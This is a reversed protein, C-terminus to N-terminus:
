TRKANRFTEFYARGNKSLKLVIRGKLRLDISIVDDSSAKDQEIFITLIRLATEVDHEPLKVTVKNKLRLNWRRQHVFAFSEAQAQVVPFAALKRLLIPAERDAGDGAVVPLHRFEEVIPREIRVGEGDLLVFKGQQGDHFVAIPVRETLIVRITGPFFRQVCASKVWPLSELRAHKEVLSGDLLSGGEKLQLAHLMEAQTTRVQEPLIIRRVILGMKSLSTATLQDLSRVVNLHWVVFGSAIGIVAFGMVWGLRTRIPSRSLKRKLPQAPM